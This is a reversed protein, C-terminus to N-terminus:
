GDCKCGGCRYGGCRYGDGQLRWPLAVGNEDIEAEDAAVDVHAAKLGDLARAARAAVERRLRDERRQLTTVSYRCTVNYRQLPM